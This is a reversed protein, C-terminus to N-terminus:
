FELGISLDISNSLSKATKINMLDLMTVIYTDDGVLWGWGLGVVTGIGSDNTKTKTLDTRTGKRRTANLSGSGLGLRVMSGQFHTEGWSRIFSVSSVSQSVTSHFPEHGYTDTHDHFSAGLLNRDNLPWHVGLDIVSSSYDSVAYDGAISDNEDGLEGNYGGGGKGVRFGWYWSESAFLENTRFAFLLILLTKRINL